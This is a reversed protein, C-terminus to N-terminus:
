VNAAQNQKYNRWLIIGPILWAFLGCAAMLLLDAQVITFISIFSAVWCFLGGWIMPKFKTAGGTIFTPIGYLMMFLSSTEASQNHKNIYFIVLFLSIGFSWWAYKIFSQEHSEFNKNKKDKVSFFIQFLLAVITLSWVDFNFSFKFTLQAWNALSCFVILAGWLISAIGKEIHSKKAKSIMENILRLSDKETFNEEQM